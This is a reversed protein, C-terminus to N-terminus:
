QRESAELPPGMSLCVGCRAIGDDDVDDALYECGESACPLDDQLEVLLRRASEAATTRARELTPETGHRRRLPDDDSAAVWMYDGTSTEYINVTADM